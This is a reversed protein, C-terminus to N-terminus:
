EIADGLGIILQGEPHAFSLYVYAINPINIALAM